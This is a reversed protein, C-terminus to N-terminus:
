SLEMPITSRLSERYERIEERTMTGPTEDIAKAIHEDLTLPVHDCIVAGAATEVSFWVNKSSINILPLLQSETTLKGRFRITRFRDTIPQNPDFHTWEGDDVSYEGDLFMSQEFFPETYASHRVTIIVLAVLMSFLLGVIIVVPIKGKLFQKIM